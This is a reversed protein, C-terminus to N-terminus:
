ASMLAMCLTSVEEAKVGLAVNVKPRDMWENVGFWKRSSM